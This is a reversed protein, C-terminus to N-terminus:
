WEAVERAGWEEGGRGVAMRAMAEAEKEDETMPEVETEEAATAAVASGAEMGEAGRLGERGLGVVGTIEYAMEEEVMVGRKGCERVGDVRGWSGM